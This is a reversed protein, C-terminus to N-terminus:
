IKKIQHKEIKHDIIKGFVTEYNEMIEKISMDIKMDQFLKTEM